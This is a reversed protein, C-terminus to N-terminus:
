DRPSPSTYLLCARLGVSKILPTGAELIEAGNDWAIKAIRLAEELSTLDLAVQLRPHKLLENISVM